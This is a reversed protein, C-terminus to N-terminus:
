TPNVVTITIPRHAATADLSTCPHIGNDFLVLYDFTYTGAAAFTATEFAVGRRTGPGSLHVAGATSPGLLAPLLAMPNNHPFVFVNVIPPNATLEEPTESASFLVPGGVGVTTPSATVFDPDVAGIGCTETTTPGAADAARALPLGALAVLGFLALSARLRQM